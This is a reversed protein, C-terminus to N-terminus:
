GLVFACVDLDTGLWTLDIRLAKLDQKDFVLQDGINITKDFDSDSFLKKAM